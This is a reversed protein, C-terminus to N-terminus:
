ITFGNQYLCNRFFFLYAQKLTYGLYNEKPSHLSSFKIRRYASSNYTFCIYEKGRYVVVVKTPGYSSDSVKVCDILQRLNLNSM